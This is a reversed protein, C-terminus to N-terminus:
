LKGVLFSFVFEIHEEDLVLHSLVFYIFSTMM